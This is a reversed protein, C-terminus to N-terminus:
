DAATITAANIHEPIFRRDVISGLELEQKLIGAKIAYHMISKLDEDTPTLGRYSVRDAPHTLVFELLKPDQNYYEKRAALKAAELRHREAWEGSEAIGRVLDRVIEPHEQILEDRVVLVCSVFHPWIDKAYYLVRGTGLLESKAAFPEGVFYADITGAALAAPMDPPPLDVFQLDAPAMGEDEMLKTIVLYQNSFRSPRAFVSGKLDRLTKARSAKRVIVTSGDRHGLYVIHIPVGQERLVMALPALLFTADIKRAKLAEVVTPFESFRQSTFRTSTTTTRTAFATVPCTLHCTVPLYGVTLASAEAHQWPRKHALTLVLLTGATIAILKNRATM